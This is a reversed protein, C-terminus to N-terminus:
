YGTQDVPLAKLPLSGNKGKLINALRKTAKNLPTEDFKNAMGVLAGNNVLDQIVFLHM